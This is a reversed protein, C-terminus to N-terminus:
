RQYPQQQGQVPLGVAGNPSKNGVEKRVNEERVIDEARRTVELVNGDITFDEATRQKTWTRTDLYMFPGRIWNPQGSAVDAKSLDISPLTPSTLWIHLETHYRWGRAYLEEAVEIQLIDQPSMYFALFLTDEAFNPLKTEVPPAHVNYCQPIHFSEEIRPPQSLSSPDAWPTVFSPYLAEESNVDVGLEGLDEGFILMGRDTKNMHVQIEYLLAKLGWKDVPSSLIQQVPRVVPETPRSPSTRQWTSDNTAAQPHPPNTSPTANSSQSASPAGPGTGVSGNPLGNNSPSSPQGLQSPNSPNRLYNSLRGDKGDGLAPFDDGLAGNAQGSGAGAPGSIGPPPPPPPAVGLQQQQLFLQQQQQLHTNQQQQQQNSATSPQSPQAQAAYTSGHQPHSGLAPFDNPDAGRGGFGPPGSRGFAGMAGRSAPPQQTAQQGATAYFM